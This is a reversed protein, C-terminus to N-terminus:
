INDPIACDSASPPGRLKFSLPHKYSISSTYCGAETVCTFAVKSLEYFPLCINFEPCESGRYRVKSKYNFNSYKNIVTTVQTVKINNAAAYCTGCTKAANPQFHGRGCFLTLLLLLVYGSINIRKLM